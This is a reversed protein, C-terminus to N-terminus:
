FTKRRRAPPIGAIKRYKAVTRRALEIGQEKLKVVIEDDSLPNGKDETQIIEGLKAKVADWSMAEGEANETGGTFFMRLPFIGRPTQIYKEAVARSVTGVHIGLQDAVGIMPLPKMMQPGHELFEKQAEVVVRLVRLLTNRRQEISEILWRANRINNSIYERTKGDVSKTKAMRKYIENIYLRPAYEETLRATYEGTEDNREVVADPTVKPVPANSLLGGPRANLHKLFEKGQNIQEITFGSKRAIQPLRNMELDHMYTSVLVRPVTLDFNRDREWADIQLILCEQLNRACIGVPELRQQLVPIAEEVDKPTLGSPLHECITELSDRIYGDDGVWDILVYGARRIRDEIDVLDWQRTLEEQLSAGRAATNAMADMKADREGSSRQRSGRNLSSWDSQDQLYQDIERDSIDSAQKEVQPTTIEAPTVAEKPVGAVATLDPQEFDSERRELVPNASLEQEIREELAMLPLQLIEMSQIMRPALKM